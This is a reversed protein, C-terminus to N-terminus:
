ENAAVQNRGKKKAIYLAADAQRFLDMKDIQSLELAAVGGSITVALKESGWRYPVGAISRSLRNGFDLADAARTHPMLIVFEDGGYRAVFDTERAEANMRRSLWRLVEDGVHHGHTDNIQKFHDVDFVLLSLPVDKHRAKQFEEEFRETFYGRTFLGTLSDSIALSQTQAYLEANGLALGILDLAILAFRLDQIEFSAAEERAEIGMWGAVDNQVKLPAFIFRGRTWTPAPRHRSVLLQPPPSKAASQGWADNPDPANNQAFFELTVDAKPFLEKLGKRARLIMEQRSFAGILDDTFNQLRHYAPIREQHDSASRKLAQVDAALRSIDLDLRDRYEEVRTQALQHRRHIWSLYVFVTWLLAIHAAFAFRAGRADALVFGLLGVLSAICAAEFGWLAGAGVFLLIMLVGFLPFTQVAPLPSRVMVWLIFLSLPVLGLPGLFALAINAWRGWRRDSPFSLLHEVPTM